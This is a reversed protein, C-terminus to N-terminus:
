DKDECHNTTWLSQKEYNRPLLKPKFRERGPYLLRDDQTTSRSDPHAAEKPLAGNRLGGSGGKAAASRLVDGESVRM